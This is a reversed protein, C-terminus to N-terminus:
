NCGSGIPILNRAVARANCRNVRSFEARPIASRCLACAASFLSCTLKYIIVLGLSPKRRAEAIHQIQTNYYSSFEARPIARRCLACAASFLSCTPKHICNVEFIAKKSSICCVKSWGLVVRSFEARPIASLCLACAGSFLSCTLKYIYMHCNMKFMANESGRCHTTNLNYIILFFDARPTAHLCLACAASFLSCTLKYIIVLGLSPKRRAEAIHQIQTNYYLSFNQALFRVGGFLV